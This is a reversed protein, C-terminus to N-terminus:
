AAGGTEFPVKHAIGLQRDPISMSLVLGQVNQSLQRMRHMREQTSDERQGPPCPLDAVWPVIRYGLRHAVGFIYHRWGWGIDEKVSELYPILARNILMPGYSYDARLGALGGCLHNIVTETYRQMEPYTMFSEASRSLFVVGAQGDGAAQSIFEHLTQEFFLKKDSETYLIYRTGADNAAELSRRTQAFVGPKDSEFIKFGPFSNLYDIFQQGSGGDTIFVPLKEQALCHISERLLKGEAEDRAWTMTAISVEAKDM